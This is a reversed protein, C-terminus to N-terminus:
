VMENRYILPQYLSAKYSTSTFSAFFSHMQFSQTSRLPARNRFHGCVRRNHHNRQVKGQNMTAQKGTQVTNDTLAFHRLMESLPDSSQSSRATHLCYRVTQSVVELKLKLASRQLDFVLAFFNVENSREHKEV